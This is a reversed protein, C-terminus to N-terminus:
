PRSRDPWRRHRAFFASEADTPWRGHEDLFERAAEEEDRDAEGEVGKRYLWGFLWWALGAGVVGAAGEAALVSPDIAFWVIGGIVVVAPIVHRVVVLILPTRHTM